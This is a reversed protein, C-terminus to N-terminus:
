TESMANLCQEDKRRALPHKRANLQYNLGVNLAYCLGAMSALVASQGSKVRPM